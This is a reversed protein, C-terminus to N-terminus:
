PLFVSAVPFNEYHQSAHELSQQTVERVVFNTKTKNQTMALTHWLINALNASLCCEAALKKHSYKHM